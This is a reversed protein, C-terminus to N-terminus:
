KKKMVGLIIAGVLSGILVALLYLLINSSLFMVLLGGHPAPITINFLGTLAGALASGIICGPLVRLPDSAAFPIAGETIFSLGMIYNSVGAEREEQTYKYKFITTSIAIALPPVMGGAMVAAMATTGQGAMTALTGTGFLYAAKNVPGGMDVSMMAGLILGLIVRSGSGMTELFTILNINIYGVVPNLIFLMALGVILVSIVPQFLILYIGKFQRNVKEGIVSDLYKVLYGALLGGALAGLFGSNGSVALAGAVLGSTLASKQGVSYAIYGGLIPVFLGFAAGGITMFTKALISTSGFNGGSNSNGTMTDFLFALAILIGGSIVLPLMYSVGSMLHKYVGVKESTGSNDNSSNGKFNAVSGKNDLIMQILEKARSIAEKAGLMLVQNGNFREEDVSKNIALIVGKARKLDEKTIENKRGDTGNTEVKIEVGMEKAAKVLADRAMFTHAIGTPCATVAVVFDKYEKEVEKEEEIKLNELVEEYKNSNIISSIKDEDDLIGAISQLIDIHTNAEGKPVAIMFFLKTKEDDEGFDVGNKSIGVLVTTKKVYESKAHPTAVGGEFATSGLNEREIVDNYFEEENSVVGIEYLHHVMEKLVEEKSSSKLDFIITRENLFDKLM